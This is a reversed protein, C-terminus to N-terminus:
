SVALGRCALKQAFASFAPLASRVSPRDTRQARQLKREAKREFEGFMMAIASFVTESPFGVSGFTVAATGTREAQVGMEHRLAHITAM